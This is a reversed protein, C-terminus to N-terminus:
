GRAAEKRQAGRKGLARDLAKLLTIRLPKQRAVRDRASKIAAASATPIHFRVAEDVSTHVIWRVQACTACLGGDSFWQKKAGGAGCDTCTSM